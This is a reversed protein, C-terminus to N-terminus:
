TTGAGKKLENLEKELARIRENLGIDTKTMEDLSKGLKEAIEHALDLSIGSNRLAIRSFYGKSYGLEKEFDSIHMKKKKLYYKVNELFIVTPTIIM